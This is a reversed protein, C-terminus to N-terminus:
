NKEAAYLEGVESESLAVDFFRIDDLAGKFHNSTALNYDGWPETSWHTSVRDHFFGLALATGVTNTGGGTADFTLGNLDNLGTTNNLADTEMLTGNIYLSRKNTTGDYTIVMHSWQQDIEAGLGGTATLDAEYEIGIWGGNDGNKGDGNFFFDNATTSGDTRSYQSRKKMGSLNGFVEIFFGYEDGVGMVFHGANGGGANTHQNTDIRMWFSVTFNQSMLQDGNPIEILSADGDFYVASEQNGFRDEGYTIAAVETGDNGGVAANANGDFKWYAQQAGDQPPVIDARGAATFNRTTETFAGGDSAMLGGGLTLTYTIGRTLEGEPAITVASGSASVTVTINNSGDTLTFNSTSATAADVAKNFTVVIEADLPVDTAASAGNLDVSAASGSQLDTGNAVLSLVALADPVPEETKCAQFIALSTIILLLISNRLLKM